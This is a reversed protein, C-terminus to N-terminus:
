KEVRNSTLREIQQEFIMLNRIEQRLKDEPISGAQRMENLEAKAQALQQQMTEKTGIKPGTWTLPKPTRALVSTPLYYDLPEFEKILRDRTQNLFETTVENAPRSTVARFFETTFADLTYAEENSYTDFPTKVGLVNREISDLTLQVDKRNLIGGTNDVSNTLEILSKKEAESLDTRDMFDEYSAQGRIIAVRFENTAKENGTNSAQTNSWTVLTRYQTDNILGDALAQRAEFESFSGDSIKVTFQSTNFEQMDRREKDQRNENREIDIVAQREAAELKSLTDAKTIGNLRDGYKEYMDRAAKVDYQMAATMRTEWLASLSKEVRNQMTATDLGLADAQSSVESSVIISANDFAEDDGWNMAADAFASEIMADSAAKNAVIRQQSVRNFITSYTTDDVQDAYNNFTDKIHQNTTRDVIEARKARLQEVVSAQAQIAAEGELSMFGPNEETGDGVMLLRRYEDYEAASQQSYRKINEVNRQIVIDAAQQGLRNIDSGVNQLAQGTLAGFAQASAGRGQDYPLNSNSTGVRQSYRPVDVM